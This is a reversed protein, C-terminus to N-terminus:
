PHPRDSISATETMITEGFRFAKDAADKPVEKSGDTGGILLEGIWEAGIVSAFAKSISVINDFRPSPQGGASILAAFKKRKNNKEESNMRDRAWVAQFRDIVQKMVSSPGSFYVPTALVVVDNEDAAEYIKHMDDKIICKGSASCSGCGACHFINMTHPRLITVDADPMASAAIGCLSSTVGDRRGSGAIFLVKM